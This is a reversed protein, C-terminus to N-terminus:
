LYKNPICPLIVDISAKLQAMEAEDPQYEEVPVAGNRNIKAYTSVFLDNDGLEKRLYDPLLVSVARKEGEDSLLMEFIRIACYCVGYITAKQTTKIETAANRMLDTYEELTSDDFKSNLKEGNVTSLQQSLFASDGHEGLVIADVDALGENKEKIIYNMRISDLFTGSGIVHTRPLGTIKYSITSIVDVPNAVVIVFPTKTPKFDEFIAETITVSQSCASLRSEGKPVSAGACHFIFDSNNFNLDNNFTILQNPYLQNGHRFDFIAGEVDPDVDVINITFNYAKYPLLLGCIFKGINGFGVISIVMDMTDRKPNM